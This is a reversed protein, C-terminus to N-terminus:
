LTPQDLASEDEEAPWMPSPKDSYKFFTDAAVLQPRTGGNYILVGLYQKGIGSENQDKRIGVIDLRNRLKGANDYLKFTISTQNVQCVTSWGKSVIQQEFPNMEEVTLLYPCSNSGFKNASFSFFYLYGPSQLNMSVWTGTLDSIRVAEQSAIPWPVDGGAYASVAVFLSMVLVKVRKM